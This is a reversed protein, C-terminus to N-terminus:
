FRHVEPIIRGVIAAAPHCTSSKCTDITNWNWLMQRRFFTQDASLNVLAPIQSNSLWRVSIKCAEAGGMDMDMSSSMTATTIAAPMMSSMTGTSAAMTMAGMSSMAASSQMDM